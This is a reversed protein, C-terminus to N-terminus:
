RDVFGERGAESTTPDTLGPDISAATGSVPTQPAVPRDSLMLVRLGAARAESNEWLEWALSLEEPDLQFREAYARVQEQHAAERATTAEEIAAALVMPDVDACLQQHADSDRGRFVVLIRDKGMFPQPTSEILAKAAAVRSSPTKGTRAIDRLTRLGKARDPELGRKRHEEEEAARAAKREDREKIRKVATEPRSLGALRAMEVPDASPNEECLQRYARVRESQLTAVQCGSYGAQCATV